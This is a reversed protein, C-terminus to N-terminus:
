EDGDDFLNLLRRATEARHQRVLRDRLLELRLESANHLGVEEGWQEMPVDVRLGASRMHDLVLQRWPVDEAATQGFAPEIRSALQEFAAAEDAWHEYEGRLRLEDLVIKTNREFHRRTMLWRHLRRCTAVERMLEQFQESTLDNARLWALFREEDRLQWKFRFRAAEAAVDETEVAIDLLDALIVALARNMAAFNLDGFEPLHLAAYRHIAALPVDTERHRVMRDRDFQAQFLHSWTMKPQNELRPPDRRREWLLQLLQVADARKIDAYHEAVYSQLRALVDAPVGASAAAALVAPLNRDPFYLSKAAAILTVFSSEDIVGDQLAGEFTVRLNVMPESLPRFSSEADGHALAVEDDDTLEGAAYRRYVEGVGVMGFDSLEAARLAGMSSAGYVPIGQQLAYLIEKHWVAMSQAFVGDILAIVDPEYTTVASLLDSQAAPPLYIAPLIQRAEAQPLTPGLFVVARM